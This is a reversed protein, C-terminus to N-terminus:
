HGLLASTTTPLSRRWRRAGWLIEPNQRRICIDLLYHSSEPGRQADLARITMHLAIEGAVFVCLLAHRSVHQADSRINVGSKWVALPM